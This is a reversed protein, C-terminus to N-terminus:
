FVAVDLSISPFEGEEPLFSLCCMSAVWGMFGDTKRLKPEQKGYYTNGKSDLVKKCNNAYWCMMRDWGSVAHRLFASNIVASAKTIDSPRVLYVKKNEKDYADFGVAKFAKNLWTFRYDDCGIMM